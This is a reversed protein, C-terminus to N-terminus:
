KLSPQTSRTLIFLKRLATVFTKSISPTSALNGNADIKSIAGCNKCIVKDNSQLTDALKYYNHGLLLCTMNDNTTPKM